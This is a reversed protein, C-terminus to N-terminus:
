DDFRPDMTRRDIIHKGPDLMSESANSSSRLLFYSRLALVSKEPAHFMQFDISWSDASKSLYCVTMGPFFQQEWFLNMVSYKRTVEGIWYAAESLLSGM